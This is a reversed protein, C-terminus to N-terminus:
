YLYTSGVVVFVLMKLLYIQVCFTAV